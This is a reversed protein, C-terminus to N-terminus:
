IQSSSLTVPLMRGEKLTIKKEYYDINMAAHKTQVYKAHNVYEQTGFTRCSTVKVINNTCSLM